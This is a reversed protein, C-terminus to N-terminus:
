QVPFSALERSNGKIMAYVHVTGDKQSFLLTPGLFHTQAIDPPSPFYNVDNLPHTHFRSVLSGNNLFKDDIITPSLMDINKRVIKLHQQTLDYIKKTKEPDLVTIQGSSDVAQLGMNSQEEAPLKKIRSYAEMIELATIIQEIGIDGNTFIARFQRMYDTLEAKHSYDDRLTEDVYERVKELLDASKVIVLGGDRRGIYGYIERNNSTMDVIAKKEQEVLKILGDLGQEFKQEMSNIRFLYRINHIPNFSHEYQMPNYRSKALYALDDRYQQNRRSLLYDTAGTIAGYALAAVAISAASARLVKSNFRWSNKAKKIPTKPKVKTRRSM